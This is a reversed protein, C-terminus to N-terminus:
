VAVAEGIIIRCFLSKLPIQALESSDYLAEPSM